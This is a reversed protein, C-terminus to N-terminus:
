RCREERYKAVLSGSQLNKPWWLPPLGVVFCGRAAAGKSSPMKQGEPMKSAAIVRDLLNEPAPDVLRQHLFEPTIVIPSLEWPESPLNLVQKVFAADEDTIRSGIRWPQLSVPKLYGIHYGDLQMRLGLALCTATKGSYREASTIYLSIM